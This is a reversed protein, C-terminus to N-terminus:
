EKVEMRLERILPRSKHINSLQAPGSQRGLDIDQYKRPNHVGGFSGYLEFAELALADHGGGDFDVGARPATIAAGGFRQQRAFLGRKGLEVDGLVRCKALLHEFARAGSDERLDEDALGMDTAAIFQVRQTTTSRSERLRTSALEVEGPACVLLHMKLRWLVGGPIDSANQTGNRIRTVTAPPADYAAIFEYPFNDPAFPAAAIKSVAEEIDAIYL